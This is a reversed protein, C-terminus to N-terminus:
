VEEKTGRSQLELLFRLQPETGGERAWRRSGGSRIPSQAQARPQATIAEAALRLATLSFATSSTALSNPAFVFVGVGAEGCCSSSSSEPRAASICTGSYGPRSANSCGSGASVTTPGLLRTYRSTESPSKRGAEHGRRPAIKMISAGNKSAIMSSVIMEFQTVIAHSDGSSGDPVHFAWKM